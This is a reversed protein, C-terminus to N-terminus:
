ELIKIITPIISKTESCFCFAIHNRTFMKRMQNHDFYKIGLIFMFTEKGLPIM